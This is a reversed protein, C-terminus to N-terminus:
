TYHVGLQSIPATEITATGPGSATQLYAFEIVPDGDAVPQYNVAGNSDPQGVEVQTVVKLAYLGPAEPLIPMEIAPTSWALGM